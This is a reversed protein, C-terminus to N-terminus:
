IVKKLSLFVGWVRATLAGRFNIVLQFHNFQRIKDVRLHSTKTESCPRLLPIVATNNRQLVHVVRALLGKIHNYKIGDDFFETCKLRDVVYRIADLLAFIESQETRVAGAFCRDNAHEKVKDFGGDVSYGNGVGFCAFPDSIQGFMVHDGRMKGPKFIQTPVSRQNSQSKSTIEM